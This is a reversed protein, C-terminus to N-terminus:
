KKLCLFPKEMMKEKSKKKKQSIKTRKPKEEILGFIKKEQDNTETNPNVRLQLEKLLCRAMWFSDIIDSTPSIGDERGEASPLDKIMGMESLIKFSEFMDIKKANGKGTAFQKVVNPEYIRIKTGHLLIFFKIIGAFEGIDHLKGKAGFAAGELAVFDCASLFGVIKDKMWQNKQYRNEFWDDDHFFLKNSTKSTKIVDTFGAFDQSVVRFNDDVEIVWMGSSNMSADLGGIKM